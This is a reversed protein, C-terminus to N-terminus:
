YDEECNIFEIDYQLSNSLQRAYSEASEFDTFDLEHSTTIEGGEHFTRLEVNFYDAENMEVASEETFSLPTLYITPRQM